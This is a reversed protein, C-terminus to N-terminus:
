HKLFGKLKDIVSRPLIKKLVRKGFVKTDFPLCRLRIALRQKAPLADAKNEIKNNATALQCQYLFSPLNRNGFHLIVPEVVRGQVKVRGRPSASVAGDYSPIFVIRDKQPCPECANVAMSLALVPEDAPNRFNAFTYSHYDEEFEKAKEFIRSCRDTKRLYYLGGHMSVCFPIQSKLNGMDEYFFWGDHSDLSLTRGYCSFDDMRGFDTWLIDTGGVILADADIFITEEYPAYKYLQLKDLYSCYPESILVFDDFERAVSCDRDCLLAFPVTSNGNARYSRLLNRALDYYKQKGTAITVFGRKGLIPLINEPEQGAANVFHNEQKM